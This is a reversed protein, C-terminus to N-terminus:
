FLALSAVYAAKQKVQRYYIYAILSLLFWLGGLDHVQAIRLLLTESHLYSLAFLLSALTALVRDRSFCYRSCDWFPRTLSM